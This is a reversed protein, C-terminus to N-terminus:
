YITPLSNLGKLYHTVQGLLKSRGTYKEAEVKQNGPVPYRSMKEECPRRPLPSLDTILKGRKGSLM